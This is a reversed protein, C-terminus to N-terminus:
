VEKIIKTVRGVVQVRLVEENKFKMVPYMPNISHLCIWDDGYEVRKVYGEDGDIIVVGLSGSDIREQKHVIVIDGDEIKPYMSDGHVRIGITEAVESESPIVCPVRDVIENRALSGFGASVSEYVPIMRVSSDLIVIEGRDMEEQDYFFSEPVGFYNAIMTVTSPNPDGKTAWYSIQNKGMHLDSLFKSRTLKREKLLLNLKEVFISM